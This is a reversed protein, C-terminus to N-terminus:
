ARVFGDISNLEDRLEEALAQQLEDNRQTGDTNGWVPGPWAIDTTFRAIHHIHLQPVLNGLAGINIKDAQYDSELLAAVASSERILQYQEDVSLHHIETLNDKRPVLILWPGLAEKSLLVRSLPLDGLITTDTALQPHLTFSM